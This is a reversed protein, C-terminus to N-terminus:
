AAHKITSTSPAVAAITAGAPVDRTILAHDGIIAGAGISVGPLITVGRGIWAHHEITIPAATQGHLRLSSNVGNRQPAARIIAKEGIMVARGITVPAHAIIQVGRSMVLGDGLSISGAGQTEFYLDRYLYLNRGLQIQKTGQINPQGLLVLSTPVPAELRMALRTQAWARQLPVLLGAWRAARILVATVLNKM